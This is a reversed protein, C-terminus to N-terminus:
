NIRKHIESHITKSGAKILEAPIQDMGPSKHSKLKEIAMKVEFTSLEPVLQETTHIETQKGDSIGHVYFLQSFHNKWRGLISHFDTVLDGKEDKLINTRPQYAKKFDSIGRYLDRINKIKSNTELEDIKAKLYEKKKNRFHRSAQCRINNQNDVSSQNPDKLWQMM